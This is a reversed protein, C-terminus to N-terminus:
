ISSGINKGKSWPLRESFTAEHDDGSRNRCCRGEGGVKEGLCFRVNSNRILLRCVSEFVVNSIYRPSLHFAPINTRRLPLNSFALSPESLPRGSFAFLCIFDAKLSAGTQALFCDASTENWKRVQLANRCHLERVMAIQIAAGASRGANIKGHPRYARQPFIYMWSRRQSM